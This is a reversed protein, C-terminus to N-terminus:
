SRSLITGDRRRIARGAIPGVASIAPSNRCRSPSV